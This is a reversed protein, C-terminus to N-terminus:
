AAAPVSVIEIVPVQGFISKELWDAKFSIILHPLIPQVVNVQALEPKVEIEAVLLGTKKLPQEEKADANWLVAIVEIGEPSNLEAVDTVPKEFTKEPHELIVLAIGVPNNSLATDAVENVPANIPQVLREPEIGVPNNSWVGFTVENLEVKPL